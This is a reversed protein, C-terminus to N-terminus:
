NKSATLESLKQRLEFNELELRAIIAEQALIREKVDYPRRRRREHVEVYDIFNDGLSNNYEKRWRDAAREVRKYGLIKTDFGASEFIEKPGIGLKYEEIFHRKFDDTYVIRKRTVNKVNPNEELSKVQKESFLTSSM